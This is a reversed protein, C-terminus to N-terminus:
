EGEVPLHNGLAWSQWEGVTLADQACAQIFGPDPAMCECGAADPPGPRYAIGPIAPTGAAVSLGGTGYRTLYNRVADTKAQALKANHTANIKELTKTSRDQVEKTAQEAQAVKLRFEIELSRKGDEAGRWLNFMLVTSGALAAILVLRWNALLFTAIM